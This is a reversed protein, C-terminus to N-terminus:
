RLLGARDVAPLAEHNKALAEALVRYTEIPYQVRYVGSRGVNGLVIGKESTVEVPGKEKIILTQPATGSLKGDNDITYVSYIFPIVWTQHAFDSVQMSANAYQGLKQLETDKVLTSFYFREQSVKGNDITLVPYGPQDTWTSMLPGVEVKSSLAAWLESTLANSYAHTELYVKLSDFFHSPGAVNELWAELM